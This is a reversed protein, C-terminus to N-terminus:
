LFAEVNLRCLAELEYGKSICHITFHIHIVAVTIIMIIMKVKANPDFNFVFNLNCNKDESRDNSGPGILPLVFYM